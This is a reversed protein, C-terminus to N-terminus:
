FPPPANGVLPKLLEAAAQSVKPDAHLMAGSFVLIGVVGPVAFMPRIPAMADLMPLAIAAGLGRLFTRRPIQFNSNM